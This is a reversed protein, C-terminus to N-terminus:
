ANGLSIYPDMMWQMSWHNNVNKYTWYAWGFTAKRYVAMQANAFRQFDEKTADKVQWEAVWEGVFTLPGDPRNIANIESAIFNNVYDINDQVTYSDFKSDFLAYYHMDLVVRNFQSAFDVLELSSGQPSSILSKCLKRSKPTEGHRRAM